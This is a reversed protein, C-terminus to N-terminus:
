SYSQGSRSPLRPDAGGQLAMNIALPVLLVTAGVNSVVLTFFSTLIGIVTLLMIPSVTGLLSMVTNAIYAAAGTREFALGLPILGALLFVTM